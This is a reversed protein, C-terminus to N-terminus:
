LRSSIGREGVFGFGGGGTTVGDGEVTVFGAAFHGGGGVGANKAEGEGCVGGGADLDVEGAADAAAGVFLVGFECAVVGEFAPHAVFAVATAEGGFGAVGEVEVRFEVLGDRGVAEPVHAVIEAAECFFLGVVEAEVGVEFGVGGDDM